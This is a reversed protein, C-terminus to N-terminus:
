GRLLQIAEDASLKGQSVQALIERRTEPSVPGPESEGVEYGLARIVENLRARVAPYSMGMEQEVRNIKGECRVFTEVFQLQEPSLQYLRGLTFHGELSTDCNRCHLRTVNLSEHCIPCQGIVPNM